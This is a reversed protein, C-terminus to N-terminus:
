RLFLALWYDFATEIPAIFQYALLGLVAGTVWAAPWLLWTLDASRKRSKGPRPPPPPIAAM